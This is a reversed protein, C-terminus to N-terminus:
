IGEKAIEDALAMYDMAVTSNPAATLLDLERSKAEKVVVAARIYTSFVKTDLKEAIRMAISMMDKSNNQRPDFKTFLIGLIQPNM